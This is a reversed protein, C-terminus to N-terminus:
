PKNKFIGQGTGLLYIADYEKKLKKLLKWKEGFHKKWDSHSLPISGIPYMTGGHELVKDYLIRNKQIMKEASQIDPAHRLIAFLWITEGEPTQFYPCWFKSKDLPYMLIPWGGTDELTLSELLEDVVRFASKNPLLLNIWPHHQHWSNNSKLFKVAPKMRHIFDAYTKNETQTSVPHLKKLDLPPKDQYTVAEIMFYWDKKSASSAISDSLPNVGSKIIQGQLYHCSKSEALYTQDEMFSQFHDYYLSTCQCTKPAPDLKITAELIISFQGLTTLSADYLEQNELKSCNRIQGNATIVKLELVNDAITGFQHTQGGLGGVSLVGGVSLGLYDTLVPPTLGEQLSVNLVDKWKAGCEVTIRDRQPAHVKCFHALDIVIGQEVQAQGYTSHGRGRCSVPLKTEQAYTMIQSIEEVTSPYFTGLNEKHVIHGFDDNSSFRKLSISNAKQRSEDLDAASKRLFGEHRINKPFLDDDKELSRQAFSGTLANM